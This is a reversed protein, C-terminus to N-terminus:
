IKFGGTQFHMFELIIVEIEIVDLDSDHFGVEKNVLCKSVEVCKATTRAPDSKM